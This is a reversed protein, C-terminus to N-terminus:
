VHARGIQEIFDDNKFYIKNDEILYCELEKLLIEKSLYLHPKTKYPASVTPCFTDCNGCENCFDGITIIQTKQEFKISAIESVDIEGDM